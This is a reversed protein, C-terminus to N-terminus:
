AEAGSRHWAQRGIGKVSELVRRRKDSPLEHGLKTLMHILLLADKKDNAGMDSNKIENVVKMVRRDLDDKPMEKDTLKRKMPKVKAEEGVTEKAAEREFPTVAKVINKWNM